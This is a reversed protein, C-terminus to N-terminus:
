SACPLRTFAEPCIMGMRSLTLQGRLLWGHACSYRSESEQQAGRERQRSRGVVVLGLTRILGLTLALTMPLALTRALALVLTLTLTLALALALALTFTVIVVVLSPATGCGGVLLNHGELLNHDAIAIAVCGTSSKM